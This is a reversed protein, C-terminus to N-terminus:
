DQPFDYEFLENIISLLWKFMPNSRNRYHMYLEIEQSESVLTEVISEALTLKSLRPHHNQLLYMSTPFLVDSTATIELLSAISESRFAVNFGLTQSQDLQIIRPKKENWDPVIASVIPFSAVDQVTVIKETLPHGERAFIQFHDNALYRRSIEKPVNNLSYNIGLDIDGNVLQNLTTPGWNEISFVMNPALKNIKLYFKAPLSVGFFNNIAIRIHAAHSGADFDDLGELVISLEDIIRPLNDALLQGKRTPKLGHRTRVFLEDNFHQRLRSLARSVAPQTMNLRKAALVTKQEEALVIFVKLLNLDLQHLLGKTLKRSPSM